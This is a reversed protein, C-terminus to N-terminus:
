CRKIKVVEYLVIGEPPCRDSCLILMVFTAVRLDCSSFKLFSIILFFYTLYDTIVLCVLFALHTEM